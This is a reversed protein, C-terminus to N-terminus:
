GVGLAAALNELTLQNNIVDMYTDYGTEPNYRGLLTEMISDAIPQQGDVCFVDM